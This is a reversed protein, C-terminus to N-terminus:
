SQREVLAVVVTSLSLVAVWWVVVAGAGHPYSIVRSFLVSAVVGAAVPIAVAIVRLLTAQVPRGEWRNSRASAEQVEDTLADGKERHEDATPDLPYVGMERVTGALSPM